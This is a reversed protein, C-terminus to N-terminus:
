IASIKEGFCDVCDLEYSPATTGSTTAGSVFRLYGTPISDPDINLVSPKYWQNDVCVEVQASDGVKTIALGLVHQDLKTWDANAIVQVSDATGGTASKTLLNLDGAEDIQLVCYGHDAIADNAGVIPVLAGASTFGVVFQGNVAVLDVRVDCILRRSREAATTAKPTTFCLVEGGFEVGFDATTGNNAVLVEGNPGVVNTIAYTGGATVADQAVFGGTYSPTTTGTAAVVNHCDGAFDRKFRVGYRPDNTEYNQLSDRWLDAQLGRSSDPAVASYLPAQSM